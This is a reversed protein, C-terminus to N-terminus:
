EFALEWNDFRSSPLLTTDDDDDNEDRRMKKMFYYYAIIGLIISLLMCRLGGASDSFEAREEIPARLAEDKLAKLRTPHIPRLRKSHRPAPPPSSNNDDAQAGQIAKPPTVPKQDKNPQKAM